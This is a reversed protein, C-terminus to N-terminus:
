NINQVTIIDKAADFDGDTTVIRECGYKRALALHMVDPAYFGDYERNTGDYKIKGKYTNAFRNSETLIEYLKCEDTDKPIIEINPTMFFYKISEKAKADLEDITGHGEKVLIHKGSTFTEIIALISVIGVDKTSSEISRLFSSSASYRGKVNFLHRVFVNADIYVRAM